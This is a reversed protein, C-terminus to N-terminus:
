SYFPNEGAAHDTADIVDAVDPVLDKIQRKIGEALTLASASCGQCGGGMKVYVNNDDDVGVLSAFGGHSALGPNIAQELLQEVQEAITGELDLEIGALPDPRNPNRIVLGGQGATRPLDLVSGRLKEVTDAPVIVTVGDAEILQDDELAHELEDFSLDYTYESGRSGTIEIRLGLEDPQDEGARISLVTELAAASIEIIPLETAFPSTITETDASM